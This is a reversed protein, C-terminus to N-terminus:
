SKIRRTPPGSSIKFWNFCFRDKLPPVSIVIKSMFNSLALLVVLGLLDKNKLKKFQTAPPSLRVKSESLTTSYGIPSWKTKIDKSGRNTVLLVLNLSSRFSILKHFVNKISAGEIPWFSVELSSKSRLQQDQSSAIDFKDGM